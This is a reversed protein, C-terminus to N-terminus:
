KSHIRKAMFGGLPCVKMVHTCMIHKMGECIPSHQGDKSFKKWYANFQNDAKIRYGKMQEQRREAGKYLEKCKNKGGNAPNAGCGSGARYGKATTIAQERANWVTEMPKFVSGGTTAQSACKLVNKLCMSCLDESCAREAEFRGNTDMMNPKFIVPCIARHQHRLHMLEWFINQHVTWGNGGKKGLCDISPYLCRERHAVEDRSKLQQCDVDYQSLAASVTKCAKVYKPWREKMEPKQTIRRFFNGIRRDLTPPIPACPTGDPGRFDGEGPKIFDNRGCYFYDQHELVFKCGGNEKVWNDRYEGIGTGLNFMERMKSLIDKNTIYGTKYMHELSQKVKPNCGKSTDRLKPMKVKGKSKPDIGHLIFAQWNNSGGPLSSKFNRNRSSIKTLIRKFRLNQILPASQPQLSTFRDIDYQMHSMNNYRLPIDKYIYHHYRKYVKTDISTSKDELMKNLNDLLSIETSNLHFNQRNELMGEVSNSLDDEMLHENHNCIHTIAGILAGNLGHALQERKKRRKNKKEVEEMRLRYQNGKFHYVHKERHTNAKNTSNEIFSQFIAAFQSKYYQKKQMEEDQHGYKRIRAIVASKNWKNYMNIEVREYIEKWKHIYKSNKGVAELTSNNDFGSVDGKIANYEYLHRKKVRKNFINSANYDINHDLNYQESIGDDYGYKDIIDKAQKIDSIQSIKTFIRHVKKTIQPTSVDNRRNDPYRIGGSSFSDWSYCISWQIFTVLLLLTNKNM